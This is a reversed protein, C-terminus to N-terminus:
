SASKGARPLGRRPGVDVGRGPRHADLSRRVEVGRRPRAFRRRPEVGIDRGLRRRAAFPRVAETSRRPRRRGRELCRHICQRCWGGLLLPAGGGRRRRAARRWAVSAGRHWPTARNRKQEATPAHERVPRRRRGARVVRPWRMFRPSPASMARRRRQKSREGTDAGHEHQDQNPEAGAVCGDDERWLVATRDEALRQRLAGSPGEEYPRGRPEVAGDVLDGRPAEERGVEPRISPTEGDDGRGHAVEADGPRVLEAREPKQLRTAEVVDGASGEVLRRRQCERRRARKPRCRRRQLEAGAGTRRCRGPRAPGNM